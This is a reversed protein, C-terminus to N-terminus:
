MGAKNKQNLLLLELDRGVLPKSYVFGQIYDCQKGQLLVLQEETEVGEAIVKIGLVKGLSIITEVIAKGSEGTVM